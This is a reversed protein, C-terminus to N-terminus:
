LDDRDEPLGVARGSVIETRIKIYHDHGDTAWSELPLKRAEHLADPGTIESAHGFVLVSWGATPDNEIRDVEFGVVSNILAATLKTGAAARLVIDGDMLAYSMPLIAPLAGMSVSVRGM